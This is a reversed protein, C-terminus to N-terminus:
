GGKRGKSTARGSRQCLLSLTANFNKTKQHFPAFRQSQRDRLKVNSQRVAQERFGESNLTPHKSRVNQKGKGHQTADEGDRQPM